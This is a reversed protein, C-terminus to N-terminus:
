AEVHPQEEWADGRLLEAKGNALSLLEDVNAASFVGEAHRENIARAIQDLQPITKAANIALRAKGLRDDTAVPKAELRPPQNVPENGLDVFRPGDQTEAHEYKMPRYPGPEPAVTSTQYDQAEEATVLGKLVDPFADRLAFGRARLQLMRKPYQTWPGSKGWLGARVADAVSFQTVSPAPYGRRKTECVAVMKDGDGAVSEKVYECVPSGMVLALAADGWISPRGNIVAVSQISQMPGLGIEAGHQIALICSEPKNQFDKPAFQSSALMKGFRMAEDVTHLTLGRPETTTLGTTM